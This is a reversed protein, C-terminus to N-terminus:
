ELANLAESVVEYNQKVQLLLEARREETCVPNGPRLAETLVHCSEGLHSFGLNLAIGKLTHVARFADEYRQDDLAQLVASFTRDERFRLLFRLIMKESPFRSLVDAYNGGITFYFTKLM